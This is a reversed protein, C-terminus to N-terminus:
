IDVSSLFIISVLVAGMSLFEGKYIGKIRSSILHKSYEKIYLNRQNDECQVLNTNRDIINNENVYDKENMEVGEDLFINDM